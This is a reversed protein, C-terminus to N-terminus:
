RLSSDHRGYLWGNRPESILVTLVDGRSFPLLVPNSSAPHSVIARMSRGGGLGLSEGVSSSRSRNPLPSPATFLYLCFFLLFNLGKM